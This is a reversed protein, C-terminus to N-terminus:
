SLFIMHIYYIGVVIFAVAVLRNFWKQFTAMRGMFKGLSQMSYALLLAVVLVPLATAVAYVVPLLYGGTATVSMPILMGFYLLGSTPCFALAFLIGLMLSGSPGSLRESWENGQFGFKGGLSIFESLLMLLGIVVLAPGLIKEGWETITMQLDFVDAGKRLVFILVAGLLSYALTRGLTYLLGSWLVRRKQSIGKSIFGIATINTALPCPSVATLLGLLAATIVSLQSNDLLTRLFDM